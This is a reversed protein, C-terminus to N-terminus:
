VPDNLGKMPGLVVTANPKFEGEVQLCMNRVRCCLFGDKHLTWRQTNNRRLDPKRLTLPTYHNPRPAVDNIDLVYRNSTDFQASRELEKPPSSGEHVLLGDVTMHWLQARNGQEKYAVYVKSDSACLVFEANLDYSKTRNILPPNSFNIYIFNEYFLFKKDDLLSFDLSESTGGKVGVVIKKDAIPEDWSYSLLSGPKVTLSYKDLWTDQQYFYIPVESFNQVQIPPPFDVTDSFVIFFTGGDLIVEVKVFYFENMNVKNRLNLCFSDVADIKFGGSWNFSSDSKLRVSLLLDKDTRPWHFQTMSDSLLRISNVNEQRENTM